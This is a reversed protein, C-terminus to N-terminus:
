LRSAMLESLVSLGQFHEVAYGAAVERADKIAKKLGSKDLRNVHEGILALEHGPSIQPLGENNLVVEDKDNLQTYTFLFSIGTGNQLKKIRERLVLGSETIIKVDSRPEDPLPKEKFSEKRPEPAEEVQTTTVM